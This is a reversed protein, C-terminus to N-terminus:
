PGSLTRVLLSTCAYIAGIAPTPTGTLEGLEVVAGVLADLELPRGEEIDRLMSTKHAGVREAGEIRREINIRMRVGLKRAIAEAETMMRVSLERTPPFRCIDVLTARTLASIPNFSLNGWLKLWIESRIDRVIPAKFGARTLSASIAQIRPTTSGDLESLSFRNGEVIQITGPAVLDAAPYVVSAIVRDPDIHSAITGDPDAARVPRGEFEGGHKHFYWWPIGNQMTVIATDPGLLHHIDAAIPAVQHAKVALLVVEHRGAEAPTACARVPRAPEESGDEGILRLGQSQLAALNAGRAIFTVDEGVGALRGGLFGGIAGAGVIAIKM